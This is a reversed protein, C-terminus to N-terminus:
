NTFHHTYMSSFFASFFVRKKWALLCAEEEDKGYKKSNFSVFSLLPHHPRKLNRKTFTNCHRLWLFHCYEVTKVLPLSFLYYYGRVDHAWKKERHAM